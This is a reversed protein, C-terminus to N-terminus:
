EIDCPKCILLFSDNMFESSAVLPIIRSNYPFPLSLIQTFTTHNRDGFSKGEVFSLTEFSTLWDECKKQQSLPVFSCLVHEFSYPLTIDYKSVIREKFISIDPLYNTETYFISGIRKGYEGDRFHNLLEWNTSDRLLFRMFEFDSPLVKEEMFDSDKYSVKVVLDKYFNKNKLSIGDMSIM